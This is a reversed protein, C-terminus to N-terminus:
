KEISREPYERSYLKSYEPHITEKADLVDCKIGHRSCLQAFGEPSISEQEVLFDAVDLFLPRNKRLFTSALDKQKALAKEIFEDTNGLNLNQVISITGQAENSIRSVNAGMGLFRCMTAAINTAKEIDSSAGSGVYDLGFVIEEAVQGALYVQIQNLYMQKNPMSNHLGIFGAKDESSTLASIQTPAFGFLSAYVVAHGAEHIAVKRLSDPNKRETKIKDIDGENFIRIVENGIKACLHKDEYRILVDRQRAKMAKLTFRPLNSEFLAAITSFVPRTGQVPFVGNRYIAEYVSHDCTLNLFSNSNVQKLIANTRKRIIEEYSSRSLSPYIVHTNGFRAIQEAKFRNKLANKIGILNIRLSHKHFLDADTDSESVLSSMQYAEDLNGSIFILLKSFSQIEYVSKDRSKQTLIEFKKSSDWKMIEEVSESLNLKKKLTRAQWYTQKFKRKKDLDSQEQKFLRDEDDESQDDSTPKSDTVSKQARHYDDNYLCELILDMIQQKNHSSSGFSGDSLLMWLDQFSYDHIEKGTEDISRFRQMEDLLLIGPEEPDINSSDLVSQLSSQYTHTSSGKNTLQIEVFRDSFNLSKVLRRVLDTKGNGTLGWLNIITPRTLTEPTCYWSEISSIIRDIVLDLGVFHDKLEESALHLEKEKLEIREILADMERENMIM